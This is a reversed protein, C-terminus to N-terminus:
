AAVENAELLPRLSRCCAIIAGSRGPFWARMWQPRQYFALSRRRARRIAGPRVLGSANIFSVDELLRGPAAFGAAVPCLRGLTALTEAVGRLCFARTRALTGRPLARLVVRVTLGSFVTDDVVAVSSAGALSALQRTLPPAGLTSLDYGGAGNEERALAIPHIRPFWGTRAHVQQAVREGARGIGVTVDFPAWPGRAILGDLQADLQLIVVGPGGIANLLEGARRFAESERGHQRTVDHTLDDHVYLTRPTSAFPARSGRARLRM